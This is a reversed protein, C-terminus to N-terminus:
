SNIAYLHLAMSTVDWVYLLSLIVMWIDMLKIGWAVRKPYHSLAMDAGRLFLWVIALLSPLIYILKVYSFDRFLLACLILFTIYGGYTIVFLGNCTTQFQLINRRAIGRLFALIDSFFGGIFILTPLLGLLFIGRSV